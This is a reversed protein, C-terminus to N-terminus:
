KPSNNFLWLCSGDMDSTESCVFVCTYGSTPKEEDAINEGGGGEEGEVLEESKKEEEGGERVPGGSWYDEPINKVPTCAM